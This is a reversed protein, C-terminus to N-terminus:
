FTISGTATFTYIRYGGTTAVTPSGTTSAALGFTDPYRLIVVGSGGTGGTYEIRAGGGGGGTNVTGATGANGLGDGGGGAGGTGGTGSPYPQGGGGGGARTVASGTISSSVGVGGNGSQGNPVGNNGVAGAGGGGGHRYNGIVGAGGNFGQNATGLGGPQQAGSDGM